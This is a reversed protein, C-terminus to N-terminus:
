NGIAEKMKQDIWVFRVWGLPDGHARATAGYYGKLWPQWLVMEYPAPMPLYPPNELIYTQYEPNRHYQGQEPDLAMANQVEKQLTAYYPDDIMSFNVFSGPRQYVLFASQWSQCVRQNLNSLIMQTYTKRVRMASYVAFDRVDIELDVGIKAWQSKAINAMDIQAEGNVLVSTKFGDPYGAEALLEKAKDPHYGWLEQVLESQEELPIFLHDYGTMPPVPFSFFVAEGDYYQEAIARTDLAMMLARRVRVDDFPPTDNRPIISNVLTGQSYKVRELEPNSLLLPKADEVLMGWLNDIQGTRLAAQRTSVDPIILVKVTDIYPLQNETFFPDHQWYNPNRDYTVSSGGVYDKLIFPGTGVVTRWDDEDGYKEIWETATIYQPTMYELMVWAKKEPTKVIVTWPDDPSVYISNEVNERDALYPWSRGPYGIDWERRLTAVIDDATMERGGVLRSAENTPDLAWRVGKRVQMVITEPDPLEWGAMLEGARNWYNAQAPVQALWEDTGGPGKAWDRTFLTENTLDLNWVQFTKYRVRNWTVPQTAWATVHVGGYKPKELMKEVVAGDQKKGTWKVMEAGKEPAVVEKPVVEEKPTEVQKPPAVKKEEEEVAAPACSALLLATVMWGTVWLWVIKRKM